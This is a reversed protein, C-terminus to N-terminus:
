ASITAEVCLHTLIVTLLQFPDINKKIENRSDIWKDWTLLIYCRNYGCITWGFLEIIFEDLPTQDCIQM